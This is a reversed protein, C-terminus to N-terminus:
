EGSEKLTGFAAKLKKCLCFPINEAVIQPLSAWNICVHTSFLGGDTQHRHQLSEAGGSTEWPLTLRVKQVTGSM